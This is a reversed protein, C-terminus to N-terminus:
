FLVLPRFKKTAGLIKKKESKPQRTNTTLKKRWPLSTVKKYKNHEVGAGM